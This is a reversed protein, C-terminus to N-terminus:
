DIPFLEFLLWLSSLALSVGQRSQKGEDAAQVFNGLASVKFSLNTLQLNIAVLELNADWLVSFM